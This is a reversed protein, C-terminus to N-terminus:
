LKSENKKKERSEKLKGALMKGRESLEARQEDTLIRPPRIKIWTKPFTAEVAGSPYEKIKVADPREKALDRLMQKKHVNLTYYSAEKEGNNFNIITETEYASSFTTREDETDENDDDYSTDLLTSETDLNETGINNEKKVDM